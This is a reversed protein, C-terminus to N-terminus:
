ASKDCTSKKGGGGGDGSGGTRNSPAAAAAFLKDKAMRRRRALWLKRRLQIAAAEPNQGVVADPTQGTAKPDKVTVDTTPEHQFPYHSQFICSMLQSTLVLNESTSICLLDYRYKRTM